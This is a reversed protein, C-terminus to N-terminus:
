ALLAVPSTTLGLRYAYLFSWAEFVLVLKGSSKIANLGCNPVLPATEVLVILDYAAFSTSGNVKYDKIRTVSWDLDLFHNELDDEQPSLGDAILLVRTPTPTAHSLRPLFLAGTLALLAVARVIFRGLHSGLCHPM